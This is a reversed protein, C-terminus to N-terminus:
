NQKLYRYNVEALEWKKVDKEKPVQIHVQMAPQIAARTVHVMVAEVALVDPAPLVNDVVDERVDMVPRVVLIVIEVDVVDQVAEVAAADGVHAAIKPVRVALEQATPHAHRRVDKTVHVEVNHQVHLVIEVGREALQEVTVWVHRHVNLTVHALVDPVLIRVDM